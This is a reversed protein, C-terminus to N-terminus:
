PPILRLPPTFKPLPLSPPVPPPRQIFLVYSAVWMPSRQLSFTRIGEDDSSFIHLKSEPLHSHKQLRIPYAHKGM